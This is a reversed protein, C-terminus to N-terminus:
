GFIKGLDEVIAETNAKLHEADSILTVKRDWPNLQGHVSTEEMAKLYLRAEVLSPTKGGAFVDEVAARLEANTGTRYVGRAYQYFRHGFLFVPKGRFLAEFGVSGTATAVAKCHERLAFSDAKRSVLRVKRHSLFERYYEPSRTVWSSRKPHEKVYILVDDPLAANLMAAMLPQHAFAGALPVTSAEPQFHLALYVYSKGYDPEVAHADYFAAAEREARWRQLNNWIRRVGDPRLYGLAYGAVIWPKSALLARIRRWYGPLKVSELAPREGKPTTLVDYRDGFRSLPVRRPDTVGAYERLLEEYRDRLPLSAETMEHELFATDRETSSYFYVVPIGRLKCLHYVVIDPIEHPLWASLYLNIGNRAIYDSWFRLHKLYWEKRRTYPVRYKWELRAVMDMFVGECPRMREILEADLPTLANWDVGPYQCSRMEGSDLWEQRSRPVADLYQPETKPGLLTVWDFPKERLVANMADRSFDYAFRGVIARIEAM